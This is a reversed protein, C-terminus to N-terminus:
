IEAVPVTLDEDISSGKGSDAKKARAKTERWFIESGYVAARCCIDVENTNGQHRALHSM